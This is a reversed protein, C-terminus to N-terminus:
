KNNKIQKNNKVKQENAKKALIVDDERKNKAGLSESQHCPIRLPDPFLDQAPFLSLRALKSASVFNIKYSQSCNQNQVKLVLILPLKKECLQNSAFNLLIPKIM